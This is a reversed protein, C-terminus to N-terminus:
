TCALSLGPEKLFAKKMRSRGHMNVVVHVGHKRLSCKTETTGRLGIANLAIPTKRLYPAM